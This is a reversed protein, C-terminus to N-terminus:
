LSHLEVPDQLGNYGTETALFTRQSPHDEFRNISPSLPRAAGALLEAALSGSRSQDNESLDDM